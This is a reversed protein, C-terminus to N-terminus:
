ASDPRSIGHRCRATMMASMLAVKSRSRSGGFPMVDARLPCNSLMSVISVGDGVGDHELHLADVRCCEIQKGARPVAHIRRLPEGLILSQVIGVDHTGTREYELFIDLSRVPRRLAEIIIELLALRVQVPNTREEDVTGSHDVRECAALHVRQQKLYRRGILGSQFAQAAVGHREM